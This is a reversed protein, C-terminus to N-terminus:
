ANLSSAIIRVIEIAINQKDVVDGPSAPISVPDKNPRLVDVRNTNAMFGTNHAGITNAVIMNLNKQQLKQQARQILNDTEMCFGCLYQGSKKTKGLHLLIDTTPHLTLTLEADTKHIKQVDATQPAFDSVAACMIIIDANPAHQFTSRALEEATNISLTQAGNVPDLNTPGSILTVDAGAYVAARALAYGMKGSSPNSIFRVADIPERTPGATVLVKKGKLIHPMALRQLCIDLLQGPEPMRGRGTTGCALTGCGPEIVTINRRRLIAINEQTSAAEYMHTNMAPAVIVPCSTALLTTTLKDDAIGHAFKALVDASCPAILALDASQGLAIHSQSIDFANEFTDDYCKRHTVGEFTAKGVFQAANKSLVVNVAAGEQTLRSALAAAKFAAISGTVGLLITRNELLKM